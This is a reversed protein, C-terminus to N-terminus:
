SWDSLLLVLNHSYFVDSFSLLFFSLVREGKPSFNSESKKFLLNFYKAFLELDLFIFVFLMRLICPFECM